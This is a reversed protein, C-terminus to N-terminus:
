VSVRYGLYQVTVALANGDLAAIEQDCVLVAFLLPEECDGATFALLDIKQEALPRKVAM